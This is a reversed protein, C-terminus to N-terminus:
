IGIKEGKVVGPEWIYLDILSKVTSIKDRLAWASWQADTYWDRDSIFGYSQIGLSECLLISRTMHFSQTVIILKDQSFINKARWCSDYTRRGAFDGQIDEKPVGLSIALDIMVTPEDYDKRRNDGSMLLKKVKGAKYLEVAANVRDRLIPSPRNDKYVGAGLVLATYSEPIDDLNTYIHKKYKQTLSYSLLFPFSCALIFLIIIFWIFKKTKIISKIRHFLRM